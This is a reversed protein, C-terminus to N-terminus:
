LLMKGGLVKKGTPGLSGGYPEVTIGFSDYDSLPLRSSVLVCAMGRANVSFVAGSTREGNRILWLQYQSKNKLTNLSDVLLLGQNSNLDAILRGEAEPMVETGKLLVFPYAAFEEFLTPAKVQQWIILNSVGLIVTLVVAMLSAVPVLRPFQVFLREFWAYFKASSHPAMLKQKLVPSPYVQPAAHVLLSSADELSRLDDRCSMCELLHKRVEEAEEHELCGLAYAPLSETPHSVTM